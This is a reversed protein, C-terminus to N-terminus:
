DCNKVPPFITPLGYWEEGWKHSGLVVDPAGSGFVMEKDGLNWLAWIEVAIDLPHDVFYIDDHRHLPEAVRGIKHDFVVTASLQPRSKNTLREEGHWIKTTKSLRSDLLELLKPELLVKVFTPSKSALGTSCGKLETQLKSITTADLFDTLVVAGHTDFSSLIESTSSRFPLETPPSTSTASPM